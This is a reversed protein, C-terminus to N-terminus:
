EDVACPVGLTSPRLAALGHATDAANNDGHSTKPEQARNGEFLGLAESADAVVAHKGADRQADGGSGTAAKRASARKAALDWDQFAYSLFLLVNLVIYCFPFSRWLSVLDQAYWIVAPAGILWCSIIMAVSVRGQLGHVNCMGQNLPFLGDLMMFFALYSWIQKCFETVEASSGAFHAVFSRRSAYALWSQVCVELAGCLLASYALCRAAAGRGEGLLVGARVSLGDRFGRPVQFLLPVLMYAVTHAALSTAGFVGARFCTVEWFWWETMSLIGPIALWLFHKVEAWNNLAERLGAWGPFNGTAAGPRVLGLYLVSGVAQVAAALTYLLAAADFGFHDLFVDVSLYVACVSLLTMAALPLAIGQALAFRRAAEFTLVCPMGFRFSWLFRAADRAVGREQRLMVFAPEAWGWALM